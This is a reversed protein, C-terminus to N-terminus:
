KKSQLLNAVDVYVTQGDLIEQKSFFSGKSVSGVPKPVGDISIGQGVGTGGYDGPTFQEAFGVDSGGRDLLHTQGFKCNSNLTLVLGYGLFEGLGETCKDDFDGNIIPRINFYTIKLNDDPKEDYGTAIVDDLAIPGYNTKCVKRIQNWPYKALKTLWSGGGPLTNEYIYGGCFGRQLPGLVYSGRIAGVISAPECSYKTETLKNIHVNTCVGGTGCRAGFCTAGGSNEFFYRFGCNAIPNNRGVVENYTLNPTANSSTSSIPANQDETALAFILKTSKVDILGRTELDDLSEAEIKVEVASCFKPVDSLPKVMYVKLAEFNVLDPNITSLIFYSSYAIFLGIIANGIRHKASAITESNGGSMTWQFGSMIIVIVALIGAVTIAFNYNKLIFDGLNAFSNEGGFSISTKAAGAALCKGWENEGTGGSCPPQNAVFGSTGKAASAKSVKDCASKKWCIPNFEPVMIEEARVPLVLFLNLGIIGVLFLKRLM